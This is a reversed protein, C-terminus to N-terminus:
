RPQSFCVSPSPWEAFCHSTSPARGRFTSSQLAWRMATSNRLPGVHHVQDGCVEQVSELYDVDRLMALRSSSGCCAGCVPGSRAESSHRESLSVLCERDMNIASAPDYCGLLNKGSSTSQRMSCEWAPPSLTCWSLDRCIVSAIVGCLNNVRRWRSLDCVFTEVCRQRHDRRLVQADCHVAEPREQCDPVRPKRPKSCDWLAHKTGGPTHPEHGSRATHFRTKRPSFRWGAVCIPGDQPTCSM